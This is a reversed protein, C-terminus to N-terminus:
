GHNSARAALEMADEIKGERLLGLATAGGMSHAPTLFFRMVGWEDDHLVDLCAAIGPLVGVANFQWVPFHPRGKPDTWAVVKRQSLLQHLDALSLALRAAAEDPNLAGGEAAKLLEVARRGAEYPDFDPDPNLRTPPRVSARHAAM